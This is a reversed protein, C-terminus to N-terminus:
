VFKTDTSLYLSTSKGIYLELVKKAKLWFFHRTYTGGKTLERVDFRRDIGGKQSSMYKNVKRGIQQVSNPKSHILHIRLIHRKKSVIFACQIDKLYFLIKLYIHPDDTIKERLAAFRDGGQDFCVKQM